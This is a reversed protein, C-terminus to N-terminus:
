PQGSTGDNSTDYVKSGKGDFTFFELEDAGYNEENPLEVLKVKGKSNQEFYPQRIQDFLPSALAESATLRVHPNFELM